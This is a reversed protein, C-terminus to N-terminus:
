AHAGIRELTQAVDAAYVDDAVILIITDDGAVTGIVGEPPAADVAAALLHAAGPPTRVVVLNGSAIISEAFDDLAAALEPADAHRSDTIVYAPGFKVAGVAALDRSATAQTIEFGHEVLADVLAQQSTM